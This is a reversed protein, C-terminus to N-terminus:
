VMIDATARFKPALSPPPRSPASPFSVLYASMRKCCALLDSDGACNITTTLGAFAWSM